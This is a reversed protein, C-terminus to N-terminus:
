PGSGLRVPVEGVARRIAKNVADAPLGTAQLLDNGIARVQAVIVGGSFGLGDRYVQGALAVAAIVLERTRVPDVGDGLERRMTDVAEAIGQVAAVLLAPAPEADRIASISRRALVRANRAVRDLHPAAAVYQALPAQARWRV